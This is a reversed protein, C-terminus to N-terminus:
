KQRDLLLKKLSTRYSCGPMKLVMAEFEEETILKSNLAAEEPCGVLGLSNKELVTIFENAENIRDYSGADCWYTARGLSNVSLRGEKNYQFITDMIELENRDSFSQQLIKEDIDRPIKYLGLVANSSKFESPKEEFSRGNPGDIMVGFEEPNNVKKTIIAFNNDRKLLDMQKFDNGVFINDGLIVIAERDRRLSRTQLIADPIGSPKDQEVFSLKVNLERVTTFIRDYLQKDKPTCLIIIETCGLYLLTTISYYIMPKGAIPLLHKSILRTSPYLRTGRGGALIIGIM